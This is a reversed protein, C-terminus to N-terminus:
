KLSLKPRFGLSSCGAVQFPDSATAAQAFPDPFPPSSGALPSTTRLPKGSTPNVTFQPRDIHVRIDRIHIPIGDIIHPIPDSAASDISVQTTLHHVEIASRVIIVGLDFPGVLASDIATISLPAGHYPGTLYLNGPAYALVGGLGYGALTHGIQSAAPCSPHESEATGSEHRAAEIDADPCYPIGAIKGLLGPPL